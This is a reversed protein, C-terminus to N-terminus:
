LTSSYKIANHITTQVFIQVKEPMENKIAKNEFIKARYVGHM